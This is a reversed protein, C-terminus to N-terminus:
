YEVQEYALLATGLCFFPAATERDDRPLLLVNVVIGTFGILMASVQENGTRTITHRGNLGITTLNGRNFGILTIPLFLRAPVLHSVYMWLVSYALVLLIGLPLLGFLAVIAFIAMLDMPYAFLADGSGLVLCMINKLSFNSDNNDVSPKDGQAIYTHILTYIDDTKFVGADQLTTACKIATHEDRAYLAATLSELNGAVAAAQEANMTTEYTIADRRGHITTTITTLEESGWVPHSSLAVFLCVVM